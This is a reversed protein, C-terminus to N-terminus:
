NRAAAWSTPSFSPAWVPFSSSISGAVIGSRALPIIVRRFTEFTSSYLDSSAEVLRFDLKELSAYIPLVMIPIFAYILGIVIAFDTYMLGLTDDEGLLGLWRFPMEVTGNRGLIIIWAFTRVLQNTWFPITILYIWISRHQVPQRVIFYAIPFGVILCLITAMIALGLSRLIIILYGPNFVLNDALDREFLFQLYAEPSLRWVVGGFPNSELFSYLAMVAVPVLMFLGIVFLAPALGILRRLAAATPTVTM